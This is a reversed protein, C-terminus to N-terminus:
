RVQNILQVNKMNDFSAHSQTSLVKLYILTTFPDHTKHVKNWSNSNIAIFHSPNWVNPFLNLIEKWWIFEVYINKFFIMVDNFCNKLNFVLLKTIYKCLNNALPNFSIVQLCYKMIIWIDITILNYNGGGNPKYTLPYTFLCIM